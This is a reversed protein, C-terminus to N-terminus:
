LQLHLTHIIRSDMITYDDWVTRWNWNPCGTSCFWHTDTDKIPM